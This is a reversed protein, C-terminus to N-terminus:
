SYGRDKVIKAKTKLYDKQVSEDLRSLIIQLQNELKATDTSAGLPLIGLGKRAMVIMGRYANYRYATRSLLTKDTAM